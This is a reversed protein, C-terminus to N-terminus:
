PSLMPFTNEPLPAKGRERYELFRNMVAWARKCIEVTSIDGVERRDGHRVGESAKSIFKLYDESIRLTNRFEEWARKGPTDPHVVLRRLHDIVRAANVVTYEHQGLCDTLEKMAFGLDPDKVLTCFMRLTDSNNKFDYATCYRALESDGLSFELEQGTADTLTEFTVSLFLGSAFSFVDTAARAIEYAKKYLQNMAEQTPIQDVDCEVLIDCNEVALRFTLNYDLKDSHMITRIAAGPNFTLKCSAPAVRGKFTIKPM